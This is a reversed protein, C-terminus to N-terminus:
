MKNRMKRDSRDRKKIKGEIVHKLPYNRHLIHGNLNAKKRRNTINRHEKVRHLVGDSVHDTWSIKEM